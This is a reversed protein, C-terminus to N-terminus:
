YYSLAGIYDYCPDCYEVGSTFMQLDSLESVPRKNCRACIGRDNREKALAYWVRLKEAKAEECEKQWDLLYSIVPIRM